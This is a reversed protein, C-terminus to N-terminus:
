NTIEGNLKLIPNDVRNSKHWADGFQIHVALVAGHIDFALAGEQADQAIIQIQGAAFVAAALPLAAGAGNQQVADGGPGAYGGDAADAMAFHRGDFAETVVPM